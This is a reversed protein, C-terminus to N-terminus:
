GKRHSLYATRSGGKGYEKLLETGHCAPSRNMSNITLVCKIRKWYRLNRSGVDSSVNQQVSLRRGLVQASRDGIGLGGHVPMEGSAGTLGGGDASRSRCVLPVSSLRNPASSVSDSPLAAVARVVSFPECSGSTSRALGYFM